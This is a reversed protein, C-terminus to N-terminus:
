KLSISFLENLVKSKDSALLVQQTHLENNWDTLTLDNLTIRGNETGLAVIDHHTFTSEKSVQNFTCGEHFDVLTKSTTDFTYLVSSTGISTTRILQYEDNDISMVRFCEGFDNQVESNLPIPTRPTHAGFGVDVLYPQDLYVIITAHTKKKVWTGDPKLVTASVLHADFGFQQLFYQFLGNLEYCFGGRCDMVIKKYMSKLNLYIPKRRIVDLNEFPITLVHQNQLQKLYELTPASEKLQLRKLYHKHNM